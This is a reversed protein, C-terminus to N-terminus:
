CWRLSPWEWDKYKRRYKRSDNGRQGRVAVGNGVGGWSDDVEARECPSERPSWYRRRKDTSLGGTHRSETKRQEEDQHGMTSRRCSPGQIEKEVGRSTLRRSTTRSNGSADKVPTVTADTTQDPSDPDMRKIEKYVTVHAERFIHMTTDSQIREQARTTYVRYDSTIRITLREIIMNYDVHNTLILSAYVSPPKATFEAFTPLLTMLHPRPQTCAPAAGM